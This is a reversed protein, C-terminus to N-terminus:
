PVQLARYFRQQRNSTSSDLFQLTGSTNTATILAGWAPPNTSIGVEYKAGLDGALSIQFGNPRFGGSCPDLFLRPRSTFNATIVKRQNMVVLLNTEAGTAGGTWGIFEQGPDPVATLMVEQNLAYYNAHPGVVGQGKVSVTLAADNTTLTLFTARISPTAATVMLSLPTNTGLGTWQVFAERNGPQAAVNVRYGFPYIVAIPDAVMKTGLDLTTGFVARVCQPVNALEFSQMSNTGSVDGSWNMFRWGASPIAWSRVIGNNTTLFVSGGNGSEFPPPYIVSIQIASSTVTGFPSSVVVTYLGATEPSAVPLMLSANTEATLNTGNRRWRFSFPETGLATVNLNNSSGLAFSDGPSLATIAPAYGVVLPIIASTISGFSNRLVALYNGAQQPQVNSLNLTSNTAGPLESENFSWQYSIPGPGTGVAVLFTNSGIAANRSSTQTLIKPSGDAPTMSFRVGGGIGNRDNPYPQWVQYDMTAQFGLRATLVYDGAALNLINSFRDGYNKLDFVGSLAMQGGTVEANISVTQPTSVQFTMRFENTAASSLYVPTALGVNQAAGGMQLDIRASALYSTMVSSAFATGDGMDAAPPTMEFVVAKNFLDPTSGSATASNSNANARAYAFYSRYTETITWDPRAVFVSSFVLLLVVPLLPCIRTRVRCNLDRAM